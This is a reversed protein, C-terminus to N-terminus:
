ALLGDDFKEIMNRVFSHNSALLEDWMDLCYGLTEDDDDNEAQDYLQQIVRTITDADLNRMLEQTESKLIKQILIIIIKNFQFINISIKEISRM